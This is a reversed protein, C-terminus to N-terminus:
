YPDELDQLYKDVDDAVVPLDDKQGTTQQSAATKATSSKPSEAGAPSGTGVRSLDSGVWMLSKGDDCAVLLDGNVPNFQMEGPKILGTIFPEITGDMNVKLIKGAAADSVFLAHGFSGSSSLAMGGNMKSTENIKAVEVVEGDPTIKYVGFTGANRFDLYNDLAYLTGDVDDYALQILGIRSTYDGKAILTEEAIGKAPLHWMNDKEFDSFYWGGDPASIIDGLGGYSSKLSWQSFTGNPNLEYIGSYRNGGEMWGDVTMLISSGFVVGTKRNIGALIESEAYTYATGTSDIAILKQKGRESSFAYSTGDPGFFVTGLAFAPKFMKAEVNQPLTIGAPLPVPQILSCYAPTWNKGVAEGTLIQEVAFDVSLRANVKGEDRNSIWMRIYVPDSFGTGFKDLRIWQCENWYYTSLNGKQRLIRLYGGFDSTDKWQYREFRENIGLDTMYREPVNDKEQIGIFALTKIDLSDASLGIQRSEGPQRTWNEAQFRVVADFDGELIEGNFAYLTGLSSGDLEMHVTANDAQVKGVSQVLDWDSDKMSGNPATELRVDRLTTISPESRLGDYANRKFLWGVWVTEPAVIKQRTSINWNVGDPSWYSKWIDGHRTLRFRVPLDPANPSYALKENLLVLKNMGQLHLWGGGIVRYHAGLGDPNMQKALYGLYTGPSYMLFESVAQDTGNSKLLLEGVLDFDGTVKHLMRPAQTRADWFENGDPVIVRLTGNEPTEIKADNGPDQWIWGEPSKGNSFAAKYEGYPEPDSDDLILDHLPIGAFLGGDDTSLNYSSIMGTSTELKQGADLSVEPWTENANTENTVTVSGEFVAISGAKGDWQVTYETGKPRIKRDGLQVEVGSSGGAPSIIRAGGQQVNVLVKGSSSHTFNLASYPNVLLRSGDPMALITESTTQIQEGEKLVAGSAIPEIPTKNTRMETVGYSIACPDNKCDSVTPLPGRNVGWNGWVCDGAPNPEYSSHVGMFSYKDCLCNLFGLPDRGSLNGRNIFLNGGSTAFVRALGQTLHKENMCNIIKSTEKAAASTLGEKFPDPNSSFGPLYHRMLSEGEAWLEATNEGGVATSGLFMVGFMHYWPGMKDVSKDDLPRLNKLKDSIATDSPPIGIQLEGSSTTSVTFYKDIKKLSDVYKTKLAETRSLQDKKDEKRQTIDETSDSITDTYSSPSAPPTFTLFTQITGKRQAWTVEKLFNHCTLLASPVDGNTVELSMDFLQSPTIEGNSRMVKIALDLERSSPLSSQGDELSGHSGMTHEVFPNGIGTESPEGSQFLLYTLSHSSIDLFKDMTREFLYQIEDAIPISQPVETQYLDKLRGQEQDCTTQALGRLSQEIAQQITPDPGPLRITEDNKGQNNLAAGKNFWDDATQQCQASTMLALLLIFFAYILKMLYMFHNIIIYKNAEVM